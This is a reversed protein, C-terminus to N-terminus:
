LTEISDKVMERTYGRALNNKIYDLIFHILLCRVGELGYKRLIYHHMYLFESKNFGFRIPLGEDKDEHMIVEKIKPLEVDVLHDIVQCLSINLNLIKYVKTHTEWAPLSEVM